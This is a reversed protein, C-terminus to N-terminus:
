QTLYQERHPGNRVMLDIFVNYDTIEKSDWVYLIGDERNNKKFFKMSYGILGGAEDFYEALEKEHDHRSFAWLKGNLYYQYVVYGIKDKFSYSREAITGDGRWVCLLGQVKGYPSNGEPTANKSKACVEDGGHGWQETNSPWNQLDNWKHENFPFPPVADRNTIMAFNPDSVIAELVPNNLPTVRSQSCGAGICLLVIIITNRM